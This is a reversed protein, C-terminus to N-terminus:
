GCRFKPVSNPVKPPNGSSEPQTEPPNRHVFIHVGTLELGCFDAFESNRRASVQVGNGVGRFVRAVLGWVGSGGGWGGLCGGRSREM